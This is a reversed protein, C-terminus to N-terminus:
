LRTRCTRYQSAAHYPRLSINNSWPLTRCLRFSTVPEPKSAFRPLLGFPPLNLGFPPSSAPSPALNRNGWKECEGVKRMGGSQAEAHATVRRHRGM